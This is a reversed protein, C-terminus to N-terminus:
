AFFSPPSRSRFDTPPRSFISRLGLNASDIHLSVPLNFAVNPIITATDALTGLPCNAWLHDTGRGDNGDDHHHGSHEPMLAAPLGTPCLTVPGGEGWATPMYGAPVLLRCAFALYM